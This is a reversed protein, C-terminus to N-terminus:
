QIESLFYKPFLYSVFERQAYFMANAVEKAVLKSELGACVKAKSVAHYAGPGCIRRYQLM